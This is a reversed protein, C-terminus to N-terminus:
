CKITGDVLSLGFESPQKFRGFCEHFNDPQSQYPKPATKKPQRLMIMWPPILMTLYREMRWGLWLLVPWECITNLFIYRRTNAIRACRELYKHQSHLILCTEKEWTWLVWQSLRVEEDEWTYQKRGAKCYTSLCKINMFAFHLLKTRLSFAFSPHICHGM